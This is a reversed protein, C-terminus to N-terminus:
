QCLQRLRKFLHTLQNHEPASVIDRYGEFLSGSQTKEKKVCRQHGQTAKAVGGVDPVMTFVSKQAMVGKQDGLRQGKKM